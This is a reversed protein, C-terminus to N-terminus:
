SNKVPFADHFYDLTARASLGLAGLAAASAVLQLGDALEQHGELDAMNAGAFGVIAGWGLGMAYKGCLSPHIEHGRNKAIASLGFIAAQGVALAATAPPPVIGERTLVILAAATQVKDFGADLAEGLPSKTHTAHALMGDMVDALRGATISLLGSKASGDALLSIGHLTLGTGMATVANGPTVIGYTRAAIRQWITRKEAPTSEWEGRNGSRHLLDMVRSYSMKTVM